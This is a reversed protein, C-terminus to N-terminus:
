ALLASHRPSNQPRTHSPAYSPTSCQPSNLHTTILRGTLHFQDVTCYNVYLVYSLDKSLLCTFTLPSLSAFLQGASSHPSLSPTPDPFAPCDHKERGRRPTQKTSRQRRRRSNPLQCTGFKRCRISRVVGRDTQRRPWVANMVTTLHWRSGDFCM